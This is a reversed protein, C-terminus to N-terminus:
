PKRDEQDLWEDIAAPLPPPPHSRVDWWVYAIGGFGLVVVGLIGVFQVTWEGALGGGFMGGLFVAWLAMYAIAAYIRWSM